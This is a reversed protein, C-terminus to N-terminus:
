KLYYYIKIKNNLIIKNSLIIKILIVTQFNYLNIYFVNIVIKIYISVTMCYVLTNILFNKKKLKRLPLKILFIFRKTFVYLYM